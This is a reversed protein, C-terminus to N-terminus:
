RAAGTGPERIESHHDLRIQKTRGRTGRWLLSSLVLVISANELTQMPSHTYQRLLGTFTEAPKPRETTNLRRKPSLKQKPTSQSETLGAAQQQGGGGGGVEM